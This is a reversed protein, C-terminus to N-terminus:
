LILADLMICIMLQELYKQYQKITIFVSIM